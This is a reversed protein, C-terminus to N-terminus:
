SRWVSFVYVTDFHPLFPVPEQVPVIPKAEGIREVSEGGEKNKETPVSELPDDSERVSKEAKEAVDGSHRKLSGRELPTEPVTNTNRRVSPYTPRKTGELQRRLQQRDM